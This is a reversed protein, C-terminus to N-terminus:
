ILKEAYNLVIFRFLYGIIVLLLGTLLTIKSSLDIVKYFDGVVYYLIGTIIVIGLILYILYRDM